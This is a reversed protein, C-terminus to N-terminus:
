IKFETLIPLHDSFVTNILKSSECKLDKSAFVYDLRWDLTNAKFGQHEFPKTTWTNQSFDPGCSSLKKLLEKVTYSTPGSNLDGSFIYYKKSDVLNLLNDVEQRKEDTVEFKHTYSLHATGVTITKGNIDLDCEVYIRGEHAYDIYDKTPEQVHQAFKRVIPYKSFIGNGVADMEDDNDWHQAEEFYFSMGTKRAVYKATSVIGPNDVCNITLEQLCVIDPDFENIIQVVNDIKEKYWINWQLLKINM